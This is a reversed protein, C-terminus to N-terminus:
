QADAKNSVIETADIDLTVEKCRHLACHLLAQNVKVWAEVVQPARGMRRLWDGLTTASPLAKISLVTRLAKDDQLHRVDDLHVSGEHQM